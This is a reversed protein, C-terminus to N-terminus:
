ISAVSRTGSVRPYCFFHNLVLQHVASVRQFLVILTRCLVVKPGVAGVSPHDELRAVLAPIADGVM